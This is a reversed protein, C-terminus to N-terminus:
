SYARPISHVHDAHHIPPTSHPKHNLLAFQIPSHDALKQVAQHHFVQFGNEQNPIAMRGVLGALDGLFNAAILSSQAHVQQGAITWLQIRAFANPSLNFRVPQPSSANKSEGVHFGLSQTSQTM